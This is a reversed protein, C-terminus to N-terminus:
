MKTLKKPLVSSTFNNARGEFVDSFARYRKGLVAQDSYTGIKSIEHYQKRTRQIKADAM